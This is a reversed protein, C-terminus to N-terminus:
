PIWSDVITWVIHEIFNNCKIIFDFESQFIEFIDCRTIEILSDEIIKM